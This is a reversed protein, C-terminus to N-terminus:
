FTKDAYILFDTPEIEIPKFYKVWAKVTNPLSIVLSLCAIVSDAGFNNIVDKDPITPALANM